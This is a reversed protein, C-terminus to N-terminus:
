GTEYLEQYESGYGSDSISRYIESNDYSYDLPYVSGVTDELYFCSYIIKSDTVRNLVCYLGENWENETSFSNQISEKVRAYAQSSYDQPTNIQEM